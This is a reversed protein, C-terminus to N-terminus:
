AHQYIENESIWLVLNFDNQLEGLSYIEIFSIWKSPNKVEGQFELHYLINWSCDIEIEGTQKHSFFSVLNWVKDSITDNRRVVKNSKDKFL